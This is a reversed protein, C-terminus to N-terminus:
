KGLNVIKGENHYKDNGLLCHSNNLFFVSEFYQFIVGTEQVGQVMDGWNKFKELQM